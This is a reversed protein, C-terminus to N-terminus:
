FDQTKSSDLVLLWGAEGPKLRYHVQRKGSPSGTVFLPFRRGLTTEVIAFEDHGQYGASAVPDDMLEPLSIESLSKGCNVAYAVLTGYSGSGASTVGVYVEPWGDSNLDAIEAWTVTGFIERKIAKRQAIKGAPTILLTNVSGHNASQIRFRIGQLELTRDFRDSAQVDNGFMAVGILGLALMKKMM